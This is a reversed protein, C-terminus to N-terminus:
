SGETKGHRVEALEEIHIIGAERLYERFDEIVKFGQSRLLGRVKSNIREGHPDLDYLLIAGDSTRELLDPIDAFRKGSLPIVNHVGYRKLARVDNKGEVLVPYSESLERLRSLWEKLDKFGM